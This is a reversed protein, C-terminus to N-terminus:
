VKKDPLAVKTVPPPPPKVAPNAVGPMRVDAGVPPVGGPYENWGASRAAKEEDSNEVIKPELEKAHYLM